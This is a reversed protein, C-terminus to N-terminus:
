GNRQIDKQRVDFAPADQRTQLVIHRAPMYRHANDGRLFRALARQQGARVAKDGFRDLAFLCQVIQEVFDSGIYIAAYFIDKQDLVVLVFALRNALIDIPGFVNMDQANGVTLGRQLSQTLLPDVAHYDVRARRLKRRILKEVLNLSLGQMGIERNNNVTLLDADAGLVACPLYETVVIRYTPHM